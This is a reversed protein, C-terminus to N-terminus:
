SPYLYFLKELLGILFLTCIFLCNLSYTIWITSLLQTLNGDASNIPNIYTLAFILHLKSSKLNAFFAFDWCLDQGLQPSTTVKSPPTYIPMIVKSHGSKYISIDCPGAIRSRSMYVSGTSDLIITVLGMYSNLNVNLNILIWYFLFDLQETVHSENWSNQLWLMSYQWWQPTINSLATRLFIRGMHLLPCIFTTRKLTIKYYCDIHRNTTSHFFLNHYIWM